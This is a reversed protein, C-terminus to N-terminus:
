RPRFFRHRILYAVAVVLLILVTITVYPPPKVSPTYTENTTPGSTTINEELTTTTAETNEPIPTLVPITFNLSIKAYERMNSHVLLDLTYEGEGLYTTNLDIKTIRTLYPIIRDKHVLNEMSVNDQSSISIDYDLVLIKDGINSENLVLKKNLIGDVMVRNLRYPDSMNEVVEFYINVPINFGVSMGMDSGTVSQESISFRIKSSYEMRTANKPVKLNVYVTKSTYPYLTIPSENISVWTKIPDEASMTCIATSNSRMYLNIPLSNSSGPIVTTYNLQSKGTEFSIANVSGVLIFLLLIGAVRKM